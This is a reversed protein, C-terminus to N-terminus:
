YRNTKSDFLEDSKCSYKHMSKCKLHSAILHRFVLQKDRKARDFHSCSKKQWQCSLFVFEALCNWKKSCQANNLQIPNKKAKERAGEAEHWYQMEQVCLWEPPVNISYCAVSFVTLQFQFSASFSASRVVFYLVSSSFFWRALKSSIYINKCNLNLKQQKNTQM